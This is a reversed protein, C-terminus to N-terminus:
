QCNADGEYACTIQGAPSVKRVKLLGRPTTRRAIWEELPARPLAIGEAESRLIAGTVVGFDEGVRFDLCHHDYATVLLVSLLRECSQM